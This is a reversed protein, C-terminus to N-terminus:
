VNLEPATEDNGEGDAGDDVTEAPAVAAEDLPLREEDSKDAGDDSAKQNPKKKEVSSKSTKTTSRTKKATKDGAREAWEKLEFIGVHREEVEFSDGKQYRKQAYDCQMLACMKIMGTM